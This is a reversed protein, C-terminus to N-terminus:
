KLALDSEAIPVAEEETGDPTYDGPFLGQYDAPNNSSGDNLTQEVSQGTKRTLHRYIKKVNKVWSKNTGRPDNAAGPPAYKAGIDEITTLGKDIYEAKLHLAMQQIGAEINEFHKLESANAGTMMGGPNNHVKFAMSSGWGTEVAMIAALLNPNINATRAAQEITEAYQGLGGLRKYGALRANADTISRSYGASDAFFESRIYAPYIQAEGKGTIMMDTPAKNDLLGLQQQALASMVPKEIGKELKVNLVRSTGGNSVHIQKVEPAMDVPFAIFAEDFTGDLKQSAELSTVCPFTQSDSQQLLSKEYEQREKNHRATREPIEAQERAREVEAEKRLIDEKGNRNAEIFDQAAKTEKFSQPSGKSWFDVYVASGENNKKQLEADVLDILMVAQQERTGAYDNKMRVNWKTLANGFVQQKRKTAENEFERIKNELMRAHRYEKEFDIDGEEYVRLAGKMKKLSPDKFFSQQDWENSDDLLTRVRELEAINAALVDNERKSFLLHAPVGDLWAKADIAGEEGLLKQAKKIEEEAYSQVHLAKALQMVKEVEGNAGFEGAGRTIGGHYIYDQLIEASKQQVEAEDLRDYFIKYHNWVNDPAAAPLSRPFKLNEAKKDPKQQVKRLNASKDSAKQLARFVKDRNAPTLEEKHEVWWRLAGPVDGSSVAASITDLHKQQTLQQIGYAREADSAAYGPAGQYVAIAQDYQGAAALANVNDRLADGARSGLQQLVSLQMRESAKQKIQALSQAARERSEPRIYGGKLDDLKSLHTNLWSEFRSPNFAGNADYFGGQGNPLQSKAVFDAQMSALAQDTQTQRTQDITYEIRDIAADRFDIANQTQQAMGLQWDDQLPFSEPIAAQPTRAPEPSTGSYLPHQQNPM